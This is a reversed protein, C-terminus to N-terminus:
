QLSLLLLFGKKGTLWDSIDLANDTSDRFVSIRKKVEQADVNLCIIFLLISILINIVKM